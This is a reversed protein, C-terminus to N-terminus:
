LFPWKKTNLNLLLYLNKSKRFHKQVNLMKVMKNNLINILIFLIKIKTAVFIFSFKQPSLYQSLCLTM